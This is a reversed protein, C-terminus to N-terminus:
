PFCLPKALYDCAGKKIAEVVSDVSAYATLMMVPIEYQRNKIQEIFAMGDLEPMRFDTLILDPQEQELLDLAKPSETEVVTEYGESQLIRELNEAMDPEDDLILVKFTKQRM